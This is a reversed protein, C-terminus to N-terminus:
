SLFQVQAAYDSLDTRLRMGYENPILIRVIDSLLFKLNGVIRWEREMYFNDPDSEDKSADFCKVHGFIRFSMFMALERLMQGYKHLDTTNVSGPITTANLFAASMGAMSDALLDNWQEVGQDFVLGLDTTEGFSPPQVQANTSVYFVPNGGRSVLFEKSFSIGFRGYKVAHLELDDFPIDCFCVVEPRFMENDSFKGQQDVHVNGSIGPDHPPHSLFGTRIITLLLQYRDEDNRLARGVFHTLENSVYRQGPTM